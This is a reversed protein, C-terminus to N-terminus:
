ALRAPLALDPPDKTAARARAPATRRSTGRCHWRRRPIASSLSASRSFSPTRRPWRLIMSLAIAATRPPAASFMASGTGLDAGIGRHRVFGAGFPGHADDADVLEIGGAPADRPDRRDRRREQLCLGAVDDRHSRRGAGFLELDDRGAVRAARLGLASDTRDGRCGTRGDSRCATRCWIPRPTDRRRRGSQPRRSIRRRSRRPASSRRASSSEM